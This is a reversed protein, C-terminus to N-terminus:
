FKKKQSKSFTISPFNINLSGQDKWMVLGLMIHALNVSFITNQYATSWSFLCFLHIYCFDIFLVRQCFKYLRIMSVMGEWPISVMFSQWPLSVNGRQSIFERQVCRKTKFTNSTLAVTLYSQQFLTNCRSKHTIDCGPMNQLLVRYKKLHKIKHIKRPGWIRVILEWMM